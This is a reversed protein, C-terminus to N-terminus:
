IKQWGILLHRDLWPFKAINLPWPWDALLIDFPQHQVTIKIEQENILLEGLRQLFLQRADDRSLKKWGSLQSIIVDLWQDIILQKEPEIPTLQIIEDATLGCLVNNLINRETQIKENGWILYDLFNVASFQAQRHVFKQKELLGFQNFLSPLMPWLVLIGANSVQHALAQRSLLAPKPNQRHIAQYQNRHNSTINLKDSISLPKQNESVAKQNVLHQYRLINSIDIHTLTSQKSPENIDKRNPILRGSLYQYKEVSLHKKCLQSIPAMQWLQELWENLPSNHIVIQRFLGIILSINIIGNNLETSIRLIIKTDPRPIEQTNHRKIYELANLILQGSSVLEEQHQLNSVKESLKLSIANLLAPQKLTLLRQLSQESLCIKALSLVWKDELGSLQKILQNININTNKINAIAEMQNTRSDRQNLYNIFNEANALHNDHLLSIKDTTRQLISGESLTNKQQNNIKYKNLAKSLATNLRKPFLLNFN